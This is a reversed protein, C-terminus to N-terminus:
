LDTSAMLYPNSDGTPPWKLRYFPERIKGPVGKGNRTPDSVAPMIRHQLVAVPPRAVDKGSGRMAKMARRHNGFWQTGM